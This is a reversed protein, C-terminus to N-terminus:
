SRDLNSQEAIDRTMRARAEDQPALRDYDVQGDGQAEIPASGRARDMGVDLNAEAELADVDMSGSSPATGSRGRELATEDRELEAEDRELLRNMDAYEDSDSAYTMREEVYDQLNEISDDGHLRRGETM